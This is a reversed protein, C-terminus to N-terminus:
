QGQRDDDFCFHSKMETESRLFTIKEILSTQQHHSFFTIQDIWNQTKKENLITNWPSVCFYDIACTEFQMNSGIENKRLGFAFM